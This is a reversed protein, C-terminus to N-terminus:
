IGPQTSDAGEALHAALKEFKCSYDISSETMVSQLATEVDLKAVISDQSGEGFLTPPALIFSAISASQPTSSISSVTPSGRDGSKKLPTDLLSGLSIDVAEGGLWQSDAGIKLPSSTPSHPPTSLTNSTVASSAQDLRSSKLLGTFGTSGNVMVMDLFKDGSDPVQSSTGPLSIDLFSLSPPSINGHSLAQGSVSPTSSTPMEINSTFLDSTNLHSAGDMIGSASVMQPAQAVEVQSVPVQPSVVAPDTAMVIPHSAFTSSPPMLTILHESPMKPLLTRQVIMPKHTRKRKRPILFNSKAVRPEPPRILQSVSTQSILRPQGSHRVLPLPMPVRFVGDTDPTLERTSGLLNSPSLGVITGNSNLKAPQLLNSAGPVLREIAELTLPDTESAADSTKVRRSTSTRELQHGCLTCQSMKAGTAQRIRQSMDRYELTAMNALRRLMNTLKDVDSMVGVDCARLPMGASSRPRWEYELMFHGKKELMLSLQALTVLRASHQTFGKMASDTLHRMDTECEVDRWSRKDKSHPSLECPPAESRHKNENCVESGAAAADGALDSSVAQKAESLVETKQPSSFLPGDPFMANEDTSFVSSPLPVQGVTRELSPKQFLHDPMSNKADNSQDGQVAVMEVDSSNDSAQKGEDCTVKTEENAKKARKGLINERYSSYTIQDISTTRHPAITIPTLTYSHHLFVVLEEKEEVETGSISSRLRDTPDRWKKQLHETISALSRNVSVHFRVRPNQCINQVRLWAATTRPVMEVTIQEPLEVAEEKSEEINNLKKLASCVPTRLMRRIRKKKKGVGITEKVKSVGSHILENLHVASTENLGKFAKRLVGYNILGYIEQTEKKVEDDFHVFKAIKQWTRYYFYRVQDKNKVISGDIGRKKCRSAILNQIADFDKGHEFLGEFFLDKEFNRWVEWSRRKKKKQGRVPTVAKTVKGTQSNTQKAQAVLLAASFIKGKNTQKIVRGSSSVRGYTDSTGPTTGDTGNDDDAVLTTAPSSMDARKEHRSCRREPLSPPKGSGSSGQKGQKGDSNRDVEKGDQEDLSLKRRKYFPM